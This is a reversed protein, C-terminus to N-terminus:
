KSDLLTKIQQDLFATDDPNRDSGAWHGWLSEIVQLRGNPLHTVEIQSDEPPFYADTRSPMVLVKATISQLAQEFGTYNPSCQTIDASQWTAIQTLVNNADMTTYIGEWCQALFEEVSGYGLREYYAYRYFNPSPPWAAWARAMTALGNIPQADYRGGKWAADAQLIGRMGELFVFNHTSIRAAGCIPAVRKVFDPYMAAWHYSQVAGMSHGVALALSTVGFKETLLRHQLRVNDCISVKPFEVGLGHSPSSSVGNGLLNVIVIFYKSPDLAKGPGTLYLSQEHTGGFHTPMIIANNRETNLQGFTIYAIKANALVEGSDLSVDGADFYDCTPLASM